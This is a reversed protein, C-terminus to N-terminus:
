RAPHLYEYYTVPEAYAGYGTIDSRTLNQVPLEFLNVAPVDANVIQEARALLRQSRAGGATTHLRTLLAALAPNTYGDAAAPSAPDISADDDEILAFDSGGLLPAIDEITSQLRHAQAIALLQDDNYIVVPELTVGVESLQSGLLALEKLADGDALEADVYVRLKFGNKYGAAALLRRAEVLDYGGPQPQGYVSPAALVDPTAYGFFIRGSLDPREVALNLARRVLVHALPGRSVNLLWSEVTPGTQLISASVHSASGYLLLDAYDTWGIASTHDASGALLAAVRRGGSSVQKIEVKRYYPHAWAHPNALLVVRRHALFSRVYYAGFTASHTAGWREAWPDSATAHALYLKRDYIGEDFWALVGLLFPSPASVNIRVAYRGLV